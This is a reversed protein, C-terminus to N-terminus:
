HRLYQHMFYFPKEDATVRALTPCIALVYVPLDGQEKLDMYSLGRKLGVCM